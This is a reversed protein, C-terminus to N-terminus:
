EDHLNREDDRDGGVDDSLNAHVSGLVYGFGLGGREGDTASEGRARNCYEGKFVFGGVTVTSKGRHFPEAREKSIGEVAEYGMRTSMDGAKAGTKTATDTATTM